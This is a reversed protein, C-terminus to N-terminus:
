AATESDSPAAAIGLERCWVRVTEGTVDIKHDDSLQAAITRYSDGADRRSQLFDCLGDGLARDVLARLLPTRAMCQVM